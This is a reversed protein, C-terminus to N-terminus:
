LCENGRIVRGDSRMLSDKVFYYMGFELFFM